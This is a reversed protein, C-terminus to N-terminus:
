VADIGTFGGQRGFLVFVEGHIFPAICVCSIYDHSFKGLSHVFSATKSREGESSIHVLHNIIWGRDEGWM